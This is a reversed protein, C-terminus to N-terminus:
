KSTGSLGTPAAPPLFPIVAKVENSPSSIGGPGTAEVVYYFTQGSGISSDVYTLQTVSPCAPQGTGGCITTYPGGSVTGRQVIFGTAPDGTGQAWSWALAVSHQAFASTSLLLLLALTFRKKM